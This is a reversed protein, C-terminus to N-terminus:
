VRGLLVGLWLSLNGLVGRRYLGLRAFLQLRRAVGARQVAAFGAIVARNEPTLRHGSAELARLNITNWRKSRGRLLWGIRRFKARLGDNTGIINSDHQRYLVVPAPDFMVVGGAGSVIQYAWWDHMVVRGAEGAAARLLGAAAANLMMTNGGAFNQVLANRFSLAPSPLPSLRREVLEASCVVRRAGLLAPQGAPVGELLRLGREVKDPLWVDDQDSFLVPGCEAPLCRLLHLFNHGAGRGPGTMVDVRLGPHAAAFRGVIALTDDRSGDDSVMLHSPPVTQAMYSDLQAQLTAAGNYTALLVVPGARMRLPVPEPM